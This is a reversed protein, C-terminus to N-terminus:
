RADGCVALPFRRETHSAARSNTMAQSRLDPRETYQAQGGTTAFNLISRGASEVVSGIIAM